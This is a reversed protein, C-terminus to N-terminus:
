SVVAFAAEPVEVKRGLVFYTEMPGKGKVDITGRAECEYKGRLKEYTAATVHIRDPSGHSEMRAATNVADGWLDYIFKHTGIVGAVVPGTNLGIRLRLSTGHTENFSDLAALMDLAMNATAEAHDPRPRPLGAVAMYADGITKIKEVGHRIALSDFASVLENLLDVLVAASTRASLPTFGVLDAFLVTVEAFNDAITEEGGKLRDAIPGPLINLLLRENEENKQRIERTRETVVQELKRNQERLRWTWVRVTAFLFALGLLGFLSYGWWTRYWPPLITLAYAAEPSEHGYVNRARVRFVYAGEPLNTYIARTEDTWESWEPDFGDLRFQYRNRAEDDFSPIAFEFRLANHGFDLVPGALGAAQTGGYLLSDGTNVRRVLAPQALRYDKARRREFRAIGDPGGFWVVQRDAADEEVFLTYTIGEIRRLPAFDWAYAGDPGRHGVGNVEQDGQLVNMWVDQTHAGQMMLAITRTGDVYARGFTTDPQFPTERTPDFRLVRAQSAFVARGDVIFIGTEGEDLGHETGYRDVEPAALVGDPFRLRVVGDPELAMWLTGDDAEVVSHTWAALDALGAVAGADRWRGAERRLMALRGDQGVFVVDPNQRSRHLALTFGSQVIQPPASGVLAYVGRESGALLTEGISLLSYIQGTLGPVAVFRPARGPAFPDLRFLGETTAVHIRGAHRAFAVVAGPLNSVEDYMSLAAPIEVRAIGKNLMLWLGDERDPYLHLIQDDQLGTVKDIVQVLRGQADIVVVGRKYTGLAFTGDSLVAAGFSLNGERLLGDVETKFPTFTQGDYLLLGERTCVLTRRRDYPLMAAILDDSLRAGGPVPELAEGDVRLLGVGPQQVYVTDRVVYAYYFPPDAEWVTMRGEAWRFLYDDTYFFVGQSTARISWVDVFDRQAEPIEAVLSVLRMEGDADPALYGLESVGGVYVTGEADVALARAASSNPLSMSRWSVGDYELVGSANGFYMVGRRDQVVAFNQPLSGYEKPTYNRLYPRGTERMAQASLSGPGLWLVLVFVFWIRRHHVHM